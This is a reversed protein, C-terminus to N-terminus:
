SISLRYKLYLPNICKTGQVPDKWGPIYIKTIFSATQTLCIYKNTRCLIYLNGACVYAPNCRIDIQYIEELDYMVIVSWIIWLYSHGSIPNIIYLSPANTVQQVGDMLWSPPWSKSDLVVDNEKWSPEFCNAIGVM